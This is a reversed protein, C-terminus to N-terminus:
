EEDPLHEIKADNWLEELKYRERYEPLFIHAYITGFDIVIWESNRYGDYNFPRVGLQKEVTERINDAIANVHMNSTGTCIVFGQTTAYEKDSMDVLAIDKGKRDRIGDVISKVLENTETM